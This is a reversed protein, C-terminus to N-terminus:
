QAYSNNGINYFGNAEKEPFNTRPRKSRRIGISLPPMKSAIQWHQSTNNLIALHLFDNIKFSLNISFRMFNLFILCELKGLIKIKNKM